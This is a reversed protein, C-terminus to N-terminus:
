CGFGGGVATTDQWPKEQTLSDHRRPPRLVATACSQPDSRRSHRGTDTRGREREPGRSNWAETATPPTLRCRADFRDAAVSPDGM